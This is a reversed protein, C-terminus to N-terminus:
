KSEARSSSHPRKQNKRGCPQFPELWGWLYWFSGDLLEDWVDFWCVFFCTSDEEKRFVSSVLGGHVTMPHISSCCCIVLVLVSSRWGSDLRWRGKPVLLTMMLRLTMLLMRRLWTGKGISSEVVTTRKGEKGGKSLTFQRRLRLAKTVCAIIKKAKGFLEHIHRFLRTM